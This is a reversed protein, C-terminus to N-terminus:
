KLIINLFTLGVQNCLNCHYHARRKLKCFPRGCSEEEPEPGFLPHTAISLLRDEDIDSKLGRHTSGPSM